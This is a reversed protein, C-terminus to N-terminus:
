HGQHYKIISKFLQKIYNDNLYENSVLHLPIGNKVMYEVRYKNIYNAYNRIYEMPTIKMQMFRNITKKILDKPNVKM